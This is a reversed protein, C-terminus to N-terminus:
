APPRTGLGTSRLLLSSNRIVCVRSQLVCRLDYLTAVIREPRRGLARFLVGLTTHQFSGTEAFATVHLWTPAYKTVRRDGGM